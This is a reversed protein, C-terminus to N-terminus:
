QYLDINSTKLRTERYSGRIEIIVIIMIMQQTYKLWYHNHHNFVKQHFLNSISLLAKRIMMIVKLQKINLPQSNASNSGFPGIPSCALFKIMRDTAKSEITM